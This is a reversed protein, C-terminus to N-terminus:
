ALFTHCYGHLHPEAIHQARINGETVRMRTSIELGVLMDPLEQQSALEAVRIKAHNHAEVHTPETRM